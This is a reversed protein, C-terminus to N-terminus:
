SNLKSSVPLLDNSKCKITMLTDTKPCTQKNNHNNNAPVTGGGSQQQPFVMLKGEEQKTRRGSTITYIKVKTNKYGLQLKKRLTSNVCLVM